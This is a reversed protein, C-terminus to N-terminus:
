PKWRTSKSGAEDTVRIRRAPLFVNSTGILDIVLEYTRGPELLKPHATSERYRACIAGCVNIACGNPSVDILKAVFDTDPADSSAHLVAMRGISSLSDTMEPSATTGIM